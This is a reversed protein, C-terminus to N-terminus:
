IQGLGERRHPADIALDLSADLSAGGIESSTSKLIICFQDGEPLSHLLSFQGRVYIISVNHTSRALSALTFLRAVGGPGAFGSQRM